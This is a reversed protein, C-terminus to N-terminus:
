VVKPSKQKIEIWEPKPELPVDATFIAEYYGSRGNAEIDLFSYTRPHYLEDTVVAEKATSISM